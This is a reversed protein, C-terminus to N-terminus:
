WGCWRWRRSASASRPRSSSRARPRLATAPERARGRRAGRRGRRPSRARPDAPGVLVGLRHVSQRRRRDARLGRRARRLDPPRAGIPRMARVPSNVGGPLLGAARAYLVESTRTDLARRPRGSARRRRAGAGLRRLRRHLLAAAGEQVRDLLLAGRPGRRAPRAGRRDPRPGRRVGGELARPGDHVGLLALGPLHAAPLLPLDRARRGDESGVELVQDEPVRWVGMGNASFGARRHYLIAAVRRLLKREVMGELHELFRETPM